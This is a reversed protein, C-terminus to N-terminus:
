KTRIEVRRNLRNCAEDDSSCIPLDNGYYSISIKEPNIKYQKVLYDKVAQARSKSLIFNLEKSGGQNDAYGEVNFYKNTGCSKVYEDLKHTVQETLRSSNSEFFVTDLVQRGVSMGEKKMGGIQQQMRTMSQMVDSLTRKQRTMLDVISDYVTKNIIVVEGNESTHAKLYEDLENRMQQIGALSSDKQSFASLATLSILVFFLNRFMRM